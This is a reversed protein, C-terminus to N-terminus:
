KVPGPPMVKMLGASSGRFFYFRFTSLSAAERWRSGLRGLCYRGAARGRDIGRKQTILLREKPEYLNEAGFPLIVLHVLHPRRRCKMEFLAPPDSREIRHSHPLPTHRRLVEDVFGFVCIFYGVGRV